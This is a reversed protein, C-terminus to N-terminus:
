KARVVRTWLLSLQMYRTNINTVIPKISRHLKKRATWAAISGSCTAYNRGRKRRPLVGCTKEWLTVQIKGINIRAVTNNICFLQQFLALTENLKHLKYHANLIKRPQTLIKTIITEQYLQTKDYKINNRWIWIEYM